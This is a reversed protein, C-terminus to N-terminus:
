PEFELDCNTIELDHFSLLIAFPPRALVVFIANELSRVLKPLARRFSSEVLSRSCPSFGHSSEVHQIEVKTRAGV